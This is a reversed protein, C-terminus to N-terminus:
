SKPLKIRWTKEIAFAGIESRTGTIRAVKRHAGISADPPGHRSGEDMPVARITATRM